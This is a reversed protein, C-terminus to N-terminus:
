KQELHLSTIAHNHATTCWLDIMVKLYSYIDFFFFFFISPPSPIPLPIPSFILFFIFPKQISEHMAVQLKAKEEMDPNARSSELIKRSEILDRAKLIPVSSSTAVGVLYKHYCSDFTFEESESKAESKSESKAPDTESPKTFAGRKQLMDYYLHLFENEHKKRVDEQVHM